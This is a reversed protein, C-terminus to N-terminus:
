FIPVTVYQFNAEYTGADQLQRVLLRFIIDINEGSVPQSSYGVEELTTTSMRAWTDIASFRTSGGYLTDDSTHYGFCSPASAGCGTSWATPSNNTSTVQNIRSGYVNMLDGSMMVFLQYGETGNTDVVFRHAGEVFTDLPVSGFPITQPTTAIDTTVGELTEGSTMGDMTFVLSAGETVLSPYSEADNAPVPINQVVDFLRFYYVRNVHPGASQITFDYEVTAHADHRYGTLADPSENYTGCGTGVGAVCSDADSLTTSAIKDNDSGGGDAYCWTSTATCLVSSVVDHAISFNSYESYQLKFRVDDRAINEIEKVSVRLKLTQGNAIDIPAANEVSLTTTPTLSLEDDFWRWNQTRPTFSSTRIQPYYNYGSLPLDNSEIMRFCYFTEANAGNQEIIWDFEIDDGEPVAYTNVASDNEEELTGAVDSVSLVLDGGTPPDGSLQTGDATGTANYGRWVTSAASDGLTTWSPESIAACTTDMPAFQLKFAKTSAPFTANLARLSMRLRIREGEGLPEDSGTLVTNEGLSDPGPPWADTPLPANNDVYLRYYNQRIALGATPWEVIQTRYTLNASTNSRWLEYHTTSAITAGVIPRPFNTGTGASRSNVFISANTLDDLTAGIAISLTLPATGANTSGNSNTVQMAGSSTQLNEIVWAVSTQASPTTAGSELFYSIQGISSLWVEHGFEDIGTLANGIRKQTHLFTRSLSNVASISETETTGAVTYTHQSRQIVWNPGPYEVVAYSVVTADSGAVGRTFVPQDSAGGWDSTSQGSNYNAAGTDPHGQGTIFVVVDADDLIGTVATGTATLASTGYTVTGQGRVVMENDSGPEGIFEIIEWSVRTNGTATGPRAITVSTLINSPNQIYATVDDANQRTAAGTSGAGVAHSNTIRMFASTSASPAIYDVGATLTLTTGTLTATGRQIEFDREPSTQAEPYTTYVDLPLGDDKSVRFCYNVGFGADSTQQIAYEIEIYQTSTLTTTAVHSGTDKVASNPTLFTTNENTVGGTAVAIDTTDAGDTLNASNYMDWAGLAEGVDTWNTVESCSTIKTGYELRFARELSTVAGENSVQVRLRVPTIQSVNTIPTDEAGGTLSTASAETGNDNRWHYHTQTLVGGVLSTDGSIDRTVSPSVSAGGSVVVDQSPNDMIIDITEDHQAFTTTDLVVYVCLTSVTSIGVSGSFTSTGNAGSFGDTDTAGFQSEGGGYSESACDYPATIDSDYYLRINDLDLSGDVTGNERITIDTVTHSGTNDTLVFMGGVHFNTAPINTTATQSGSVTVLVDSAINVRPYQNYAFIPTGQDTVRFCYTNGETATTSAVISYELEVYQTSSLVLSGTQSNTERVGGNPTLFTTNENTVGGTAVAIDTTDAGDTLNASNYMDFDGNVAGVDTWGTADVCAGVTSAYELRYQMAPTSSGGENSVELRLRIPSNQQLATVSTDETGFTRSTATTETGNDNRWHYHMLTPMDNLVQTTGAINQTIAPGTFGGSVLVDSEPNAITIDITEDNSTSDLVDLVVYVCMTSTETVTISSGSFSSVGDAGSFGNTDTSGFQSETGTYSESACDYPASTDSEYYLKVNTLDVSADITGSETITIGTVDTSGYTNYLAFTGGVYFNSTSANTTATQSGSTTVHVGPFVDALTDAYIYDETAEYWTALIRQDNSINLDVGYIDDAGGTNVPGSESSWSTMGDTSRKWYVNGTTPTAATTRASYAVYVDDNAADLAIAVGTIARTAVNSVVATTLTWSTGNYFATRVDDDTGLTANDATYALYVNGPTTSSVAVALGVDYTTNDTANADVTTWSGSWSSNNWIKTRIDEASIDRNIIMINGGALPALVNYDNALDMPNTGTETWGTTADCGSSCEVVYSDSADAVALYLTGDTGKTISPSNAGLGFTAVSNGSNTSADVPSTGKLLTDSSATDLRNYFLDDASTDMTVIHIYSGTDGPTWRDYWVQIAICDTQADVSVASNWSAGGDSTKSYACNGGSDRYFKYGTQDDTFVTQSGSQLHSTPTINVLTDVAVQAAEAVPTIERILVNGFLSFLIAVILYASVFRKSLRLQAIFGGNM